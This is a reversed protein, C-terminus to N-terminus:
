DKFYEKLDNVRNGKEAVIKVKNKWYNARELEQSSLYHQYLALMPIIYSTNMYPVVTKYPDDAFCINLYDLAYDKELSKKLYAINDINTESYQYALGILYLKDTFPKTFAEYATVATYVPRGLKNESLKKLFVKPYAELDQYKTWEIPAKLEKALYESYKQNLTLLATNIVTVDKRIGFVAQLMWAFYTDNDGGTILIANPKLSILTNYNYNLLGQSANGSEYWKKLFVEKMEMNRTMEYHNVWDPYTEYRNSDIQYAKQLYPFYEENNYANSWKVFNAEFTNPINAELEQVVKELRSFRQPIAVSDNEQGIQAYRHARYYNFWADANKPNKDIEKKWLAIQELYYNNPKMVRVISYIKEAKQTFGSISLLCFIFGCFYKFSTM